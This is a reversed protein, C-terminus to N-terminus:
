RKSLSTNQMACSWIVLGFAIKNVFDALNYIVNLTNIDVGGALYGFLYGLPYIAWGVTVIMRMASFATKLPKNGSSKMAKGAEGSFLEFIIYIWAAVGVVFGFIASIYGAEGMYGFILMVLSAILLRWFMSGPVKRVAALILYFEVIQLPVTILWDIYRYVTPTEGTEVWIGRMYMYHVFAVGTVLGAVSVSPRWAQAVTNREAFFFVTSAIMGMSVVWFTFGVFDDTALVTTAANATSSVGVFALAAVILMSIKKM